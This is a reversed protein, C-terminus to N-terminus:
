DPKGGSKKFLPEPPESTRPDVTRVPEVPHVIEAGIGAAGQAPPCKETFSVM